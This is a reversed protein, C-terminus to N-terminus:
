VSVDGPDMEEVGEDSWGSGVETGGVGVEGGRSQLTMGEGEGREVYRGHGREHSVEEYIRKFYLRLTRLGRLYGRDVDHRDKPPCTASSLVTASDEATVCNAFDVIKLLIQGGQNDKHQHHERPRGEEDVDGRDYLMLLSSAYFRYGPLKRIIAEMRSIKELIVPIHKLARAHGIGDYFFRTLASQFERGAKLDRGFYKDEFLNSQTKVNWVQMGCVRVGLERSTTTQCKRRQSKQKKEDAHIGYQRTGMKLDLVCPHKMGATLDELLIFHAIRGNDEGVSQEPNHPNDGLNIPLDLFPPATTTTTASSPSSNALDGHSQMPLKIEPPQQHKEKKQEPDPCSGKEYDDDMAFVDEGDGKYGEDEHYELDGPKGDMDVAKRRLGNGSHRRRPTKVATLPKDFESTDVSRSEVGAGQGERRPIAFENITPASNHPSERCVRNKIAQKRTQDRPSVPSDQTQAQGKTIPGSIDVTNHRELSPMDATIMSESRQATRRMSKGTHSRQRRDHRHIVPPSFVDRFVQNQLDKNVVTAGWSSLHRMRPRKDDEGPSSGPTASLFSNGQMESISHPRGQRSIQRVYDPIATAPRTPMDHYFSPPIIHRNNSLSVEPVANNQAAMSHSIVRPQDDDDKTADLNDKGSQDAYNPKSATVSDGETKRKKSPKKYTVNLVGIYRHASMNAPDDCM